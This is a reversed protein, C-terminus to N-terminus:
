IRQERYKVCKECKSVVSAGVRKGDVMVPATAVHVWKHWCGTIIFHILKLM